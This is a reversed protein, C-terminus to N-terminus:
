DIVIKRTFSGSKSSIKLHYIGKPQGSLDLISRKTRVITSYVNRGVLDYIELMLDEELSSFEIYSKGSSPNPSIKCSRELVTKEISNPPTYSTSNSKSSNFNKAKDAVCVSPPVVEM